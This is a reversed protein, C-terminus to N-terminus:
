QPKSQTEQTNSEITQVPPPLPNLYLKVFSLHFSQFGTPNLFTASSDSADLLIFPATFESTGIFGPERYVM